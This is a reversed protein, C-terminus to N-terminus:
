LAAVIQAVAGPKLLQPWSGPSWGSSIASRSVYRGPSVAVSSSVALLGCAGTSSVRLAASPKSPSARAIRAPSGNVSVMRGSSAGASASATSSALGGCGSAAAAGGGGSSAVAVSGTRSSRPTSDTPSTASRSDYPGPAVAVSVIVV